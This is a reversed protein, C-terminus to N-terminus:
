LLARVERELDRPRVPKILITTAGAAEAEAADHLLGTVIIVPIAGYLTRIARLAEMGGMRPMELDMTIVDFAGRTCVDVAEQGDAATQVDFGRAQFWQRFALRIGPEDDVILIRPREM